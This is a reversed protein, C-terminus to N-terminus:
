VILAHFHVTCCCGVGVPQPVHFDSPAVHPVIVAALEQM